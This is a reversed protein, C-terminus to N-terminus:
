DELYDSLKRRRKHHAVSRRVAMNEIQRERERSIGFKDAAEQLTKPVGDVLGYRYILLQRERENRCKLLVNKMREARREDTIFISINEILDQSTKHTSEENTDEVPSTQTVNKKSSIYHIVEDSVMWDVYHSTKYELNDLYLTNGVKVRLKEVCQMLLDRDYGIQSSYKKMCDVIMPVYSVLFSELSTKGGLRAERALKECEQRTLSIKSVMASLKEGDLQEPVIDINSVFADWNKYIDMM